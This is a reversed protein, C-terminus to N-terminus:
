AEKAPPKEQPKPQEAELAAKLEKLNNVADVLWQAVDRPLNEVAKDEDKALQELVAKVTGALQKVAAEAEKSRAPAAQAAAAPQPQQQQGKHDSM